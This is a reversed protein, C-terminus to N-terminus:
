REKPRQTPRAHSRVPHDLRYGVGRVTVILEPYRPTAEVVRRLHSIHVDLARTNDGEETRWVLRFLEDRPVVKGLRAMLVALIRSGTPRLQRLTDAIQLRHTRTDLSMGPVHVIDPMCTMLTTQTRAILQDMTFPHFLTADASPPPNDTDRSLVLVPADLRRKLWAVSRHGGTPPANLIVLSADLDLALAQSTSPVWRILYQAADLAGSLQRALSQTRAIVVITYPDMAVHILQSLHDHFPQRPLGQM